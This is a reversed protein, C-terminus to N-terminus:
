NNYDNHVNYRMSGICFYAPTNMGLESTDSSKMTFVITDVTGLKSVEIKKWYNLIDTGKALYVYVTDTKRHGNLYGNILLVCEDSATFPRNFATGNKMAYYAYSSNTIYLDDPYFASGDTMRMRCSSEGSDTRWCAVIYPTGPGAVGGGTISSWQHQTWDAGTYDANDTSKSPCFGNWSAFTNGEWEFITASHSLTVGNVDLSTIAPNNCDTWYGAENFQSFQPVWENNTDKDDSVCSAFGLALMVSAAPILITKLTM